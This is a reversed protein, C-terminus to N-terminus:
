GATSDTDTRGHLMCSYRYLQIYVLVVATFKFRDLNLVETSWLNPRPKGTCWSKKKKEAHRYRYQKSHEQGRPFIPCRAKDGLLFFFYWFHIIWRFSLNGIDSISPSSDFGRARAARSTHLFNVFIQPFGRERWSCAICSNGQSWSYLIFFSFYLVHCVCTSNLLEIM